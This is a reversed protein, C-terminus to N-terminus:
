KLLSFGAQRIAPVRKVPRQERNREAVRKLTETDVDTYEIDLEKYLEERVVQEGDRRAQAVLEQKYEAAAARAWRRHKCAKGYLGAPCSCTIYWKGNRYLTKVAYETQNDSESLVIYFPLKSAEDVVRRCRSIQESTVTAAKTSITM